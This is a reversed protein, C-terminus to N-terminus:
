LISAARAMLLICAVSITACLLALMLCAYDTRTQQRTYPRGALPM